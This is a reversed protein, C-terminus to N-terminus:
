YSSRMYVSTNIRITIVRNSGSVNRMIYTSNGDRTNHVSHTGSSNNRVYQKDQPSPRGGMTAGSVQVQHLHTTHINNTFSRYGREALGTEPHVSANSNTSADFESGEVYHDVPDAGSTRSQMANRELNKKRKRFGSEVM